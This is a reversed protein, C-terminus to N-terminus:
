VFNALMALPMQRLTTCCRRRRALMALPMQRLTTCCRRRRALMALPIQHPHHSWAPLSRAARSQGRQVNSLCATDGPCISPNM